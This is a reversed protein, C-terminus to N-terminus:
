FNFQVSMTSVSIGDQIPPVWRLVLETRISMVVNAQLAGIPCVVKGCVNAYGSALGGTAGVRVNGVSVPLYAVTSYVSPKNYSNKYVGAEVTVTGSTLNFGLGPHVENFGPASHKSAGHIVVGMEAADASRCSSGAAAVTCAAVMLLFKIM